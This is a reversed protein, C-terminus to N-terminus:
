QYYITFFTYATDSDYLVGIHSGKRLVTPDEFQVKSITEVMKVGGLDEPKLNHNFPGMRCKKAENSRSLGVVANAPRKDPPACDVSGDEDKLHIGGDGYSGEESFLEDDGGNNGNETKEPACVNGFVPSPAKGTEVDVQTEGQEDTNQTFDALLDQSKLISENDGGFLEQSVEEANNNLLFTEDETLATQETNTAQEHELLIVTGTLNASKNTSPRGRTVYGMQTLTPQPNSKGQDAVPSVIPNQHDTNNNM